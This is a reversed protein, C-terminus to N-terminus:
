GDLPLDADSSNYVEVFEDSATAGGTVVEGILLGASPPWTVAASGAGEAEDVYANTPQTRLAAGLVVALFCVLAARQWVATNAARMTSVGNRRAPPPPPVDAPLRDSLSAPPWPEARRRPRASPIREGRRGAVARM